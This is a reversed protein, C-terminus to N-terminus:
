HTIEMFHIRSHERQIPYSRTLTDRLSDTTPALPTNTQHFTRFHTLFNQSFCCCHFSSLVLLQLISPARQCSRNVILQHDTQCLCSHKTLSQILFSILYNIIAQVRFDINDHLYVHQPIFMHLLPQHM